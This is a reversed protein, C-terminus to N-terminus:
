PAPSTHRDRGRPRVARPGVSVSVIVDPAAWARLDKIRLARVLEDRLPPSAHVHVVSRPAVARLLAAVHERLASAHQWAGSVDIRCMPRTPLETFQASLLRGGGDGPRFRLDWVGKAELREAFSTREISGPYVVPAALPRGGQDERLIQARHIHGSLVAAIGRPVAHGRLVDPGARFTYDHAGVCAGEVTQHMCLLRLDANPQEAVDALPLGTIGIDRQHPFGCLAVRVSRCELTFWRARDFVYVNRRRALLGFPIRGREHNGPVIFVPVGGDAVAILPALARDVLGASVKSRFLLDGGHVVIDVEGRRAPELAREYNEFFDVGRRPRDVRARVPDDFGLHTDALLLVAVEHPDRTM